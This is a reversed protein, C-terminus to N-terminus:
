DDEEQMEPALVDLGEFVNPDEEFYPFRMARYTGDIKGLLRTHDGEKFTERTQNGRTCMMRSTSVLLRNGRQTLARITGETHEIFLECVFTREGFMETAPGCDLIPSVRPEYVPVEMGLNELFKKDLENYYGEQVVVRIKRERQQEQLYELTDVFMAFQALTRKRCEFNDRNFSGTGLCVATDLHWGTEPRLLSLIRHLHKRAESRKWLRSKAGLEAAISELTADKIATPPATSLKPTPPPARSGKKKRPVFTWDDSSM